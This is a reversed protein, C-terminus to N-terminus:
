TISVSRLCQPLFVFTNHQELGKLCQLFCKLATENKGLKLLKEGKEYMENRKKYSMEAESGTDLCEPSCWVYISLSDASSVESICNFHLTNM